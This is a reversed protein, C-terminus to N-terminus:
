LLGEHLRVLREALMRALFFAYHPKEKLSQIYEEKSIKILKGAGISRVTATRKNKVLFSMEGLFVDVPTLVSVQRGNALVEFKGAIIFYLFTSDEGQSFVIQQDKFEQVKQEQFFQPVLGTGLKRHEIRIKLKAAGEQFSYGMLNTSGPASTTPLVESWLFDPDGTTVTFISEQSQVSFDITLKGKFGKQLAKMIKEVLEVYLSERELHGILNGNYLFNVLINIHTILDFADQEIIFEGTLGSRVLAHFKWQNLLSRNSHLISLVRPLYYKLRDIELVSVLNIGGAKARLEAENARSHLVISAGYHLWPDASLVKLTEEGKLLPDSYNIINIEPLEYNLFQLAAAHNKLVHLNFGDFPKVINRIETILLEDSCLLAITAM